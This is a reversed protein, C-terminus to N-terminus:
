DRWRLPWTSPIPRAPDYVIMGKIESKFTKVIDWYNDRVKYPVDLDNLWTFKGEEKSELVYMRPEKRNVIGQLTTLMIKDDGPADSM